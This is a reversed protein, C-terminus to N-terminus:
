AGREQELREAVLDISQAHLGCKLLRHWDWTVVLIQLREGAENLVQSMRRLREDDTNTFPDDLLVPLSGDEGALLTAMALRVLVGLQEKAGQSLADFDHAGVAGRDIQRLAYTEDFHATAGPFLQGLLRGVEDQLPALYREQAEARCQSLTTFLLAAAQAENEEAALDERASETAAQAQALKDHLDSSRDANLQGELGHREERHRRMGQQTSDLAAQAGQLQREIQRPRMAELQAQLAELAERAERAHLLAAGHAERLLEDSGHAEVHQALAEEAQAARAQAHSLADQARHAEGRLTAAQEAHAALRDEAERAASRRVREEVEADRRAERLESMSRPLPADGPASLRAQRAAAEEQQVLAESLARRLPEPGPRGARAREEAKLEQTLREAARHQTRAHDLNPVGLEALADELARGARAVERRRQELDEGGPTLTLEALEGIRLVRRSVTEVRHVEDVALEVGELTLPALAKIELVSAAVELAHRASRARENLSELRQLERETFRSLPRLQARLSEMHQHWAQADGLESELRAREAQTRLVEEQARLRRNLREAEAIAADAARVAQELAPRQAQHQAADAQRSALRQEQPAVQAKAEALATRLEERRKAREGQHTADARALADAKALEGQQGNLEDLKRRADQALGVARELEPLAAELKELQGSVAAHRELALEHADRRASLERLEAEATELRQSAQHLPSSASRSRQGTPTFYRGYREKAKALLADAGQGALVQGSIAALQAALSSQADEYLDEHPALVSGGQSVRLLAWTGQHEPKIEGSRAPEGVGLDARVREEAPDGSLEELPAGPARIKLETTGARNGGFVKELEYRVEDLTFVVRVRPAGGDARKMAEQASAESRSRYTLGAWIAEFFTSKGSENPAHIVNVGDAFRLRLPGKIVRYDQVEAEILRLRM